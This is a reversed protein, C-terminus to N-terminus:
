RFRGHVIHPSSSEPVLRCMSPEFNNFSPPLAWLPSAWPNPHPPLSASFLGRLRRKRGGDCTGLCYRNFSQLISCHRGKSLRSCPVCGPAILCLAISRSLRRRCFIALSPVNLVIEGDNSPAFETFGLSTVGADSYFTIRNLQQATLATSDSGFLIQEAGGASDPGAPLLPYAVSLINM